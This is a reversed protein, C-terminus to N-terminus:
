ENYEVRAYIYYKSEIWLNRLTKASVQTLQNYINDNINIDCQTQSFTILNSIIQQIKKWRTSEYCIFNNAFLIGFLDFVRQSYLFKCLLHFSYKFELYNQCDLKM